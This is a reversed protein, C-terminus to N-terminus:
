RPHTYVPSHLEQLREHYEHETVSTHWHGAVRFGTVVGLYLAVALVTATVPRLRARVPIM